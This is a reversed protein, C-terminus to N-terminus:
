AGWTGREDGYGGLVVEGRARVGDLGVDEMDSFIEAIRARVAFLVRGDRRWV